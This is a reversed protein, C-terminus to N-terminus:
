TRVEVDIPHGPVVLVPRDARRALESATSSAFIRQALNLCRSGCVIVAVDQERAVDLLAQVREGERVICTARALGRADAWAHLPELTVRDVLTLPVAAEAALVPVHRFTEDVGLVIIGRNCARALDDTVAAAPVASAQLDTALLIPGKGVKATTIDPPVVMVPMPLRRLLRRAVRGLGGFMPAPSGVAKGVLICDAEFRRAAETLGDDVSRDWLSQYDSFPDDLGSDRVLRRMNEVAIEPAAATSEIVLMRKALEPLVHVAALGQMGDFRADEHLWKAIQLAGACRDNFDIGAIWRM